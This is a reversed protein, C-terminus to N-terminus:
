QFAILGLTNFKFPDITIFNLHFYMYTELCIFDSFILLQQPNTKLESIILM